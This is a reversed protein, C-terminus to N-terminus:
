EHFHSAIKDTATCFTQVYNEIVKAAAYGFLVPEIYDWQGSISDVRDDEWLRKLVEDKQSFFETFDVLITLPRGEIKWRGIRIRIGANFM